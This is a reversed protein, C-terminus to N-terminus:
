RLLKKLTDPIEDVLSTQQAYAESFGALQLKFESESFDGNLFAQYSENADICHQMVEDLAKAAVSAKLMELVEAVEPLYVGNANYVFRQFGGMVMDSYFVSLLTLQHDPSSLDKLIAATLGKSRDEDCRKLMADHLMAPSSDQPKDTVVNQSIDQSPDHSM